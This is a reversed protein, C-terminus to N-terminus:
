ASRAALMADALGYSERAIFANDCDAGPGSACIGQLAKAAFYDRLSMGSLDRKTEAVTKPEFVMHDYDAVPFAPGGDQISM